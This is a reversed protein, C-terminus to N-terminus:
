GPHADLAGDQAHCGLQMALQSSKSDGLLSVRPLDTLAYGTLWLPFGWRSLLCCHGTAQPGPSVSWSLALRAGPKVETQKRVASATCAAAEWERPWRKPM